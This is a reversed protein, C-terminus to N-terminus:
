APEQVRHVRGVEPSALEQSKGSPWRIVVRDVTQQEGLGFDGFPDASCMSILARPDFGDWNDLEENLESLEPDSTIELCEGFTPLDVDLDTPEGEEDMCPQLTITVETIPEEDITPPEAQPPIDIRDGTEPLVVAGGEELDVTASACPKSGPPDCLAGNEIRFRVPLTRGDVLGIVEDTNVNRIERGTEVPEVDAFGLETAGVLVHIRYFRDVDLDFDNTHWNVGYHDGRLRVTESGPGTDMTFEIELGDEQCEADEDPEGETEELECISVLPRLNPNFEDEEFHEHDSPDPVLPPLFFFDPNSGGHAADLIALDPALGDPSILGDDRCSGLLLALALVLLPFCRRMM